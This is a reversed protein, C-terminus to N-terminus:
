EGGENKGSGEDGTSSSKDVKILDKGTDKVACDASNAARLGKIEFSHKWTALSYVRKLRKM